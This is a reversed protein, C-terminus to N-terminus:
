SGCERTLSLRWGTVPKTAVCADDALPQQHAGTRRRRRGPRASPTVAPPRDAPLPQGRGILLLAADDLLAHGVHALVDEILGDLAAGLDQV